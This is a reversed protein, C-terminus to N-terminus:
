ARLTSVIRRAVEPTLAQTLTPNALEWVAEKTREDLAIDERMEIINAWEEIDLASLKGALFRELASIVHEPNGVVVSEHASFPIGRLKEALLPWSYKFSLVDNLLERNTDSM